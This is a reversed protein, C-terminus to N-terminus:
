EPRPTPRAVASDNGSDAEADDGPPAFDARAAAEEDWVTPVESGEDPVTTPEETM